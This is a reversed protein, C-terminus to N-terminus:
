YEPISSFVLHLPFSTEEPKATQGHTHWKETDSGWKEGRYFPSINLHSVGRGGCSRRHSHGQNKTNNFNVGDEEELSFGVLNYNQKANQVVWKLCMRYCHPLYALVNNEGNCLHSVNIGLHALDGHSWNCVVLLELDHSNHILCWASRLSRRWAQTREVM